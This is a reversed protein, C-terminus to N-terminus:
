ALGSLRIAGASIASVGIGLIENRLSTDLAIGLIKFPKAHALALIHTSMDNELMDDVVIANEISGIAAHLKRREFKSKRDMGALETKLKGLVANQNNIRTRVGVRARLLIDHDRGFSSTVSVGAGIISLLILLFLVADVLSFVTLEDLDKVQLFLRFVMVLTLSLLGFMSILVIADRVHTGQELRSHTAERLWAWIRYDTEIRLVLHLPHAPKGPDADPVPIDKIGETALNSYFGLYRVKEWLKLSANFAISLFVTGSVTASFFWIWWVVYDQAKPDTGTEAGYFDRGSDSLARFIPGIFAHTASLVFAVVTPVIIITKANSLLDIMIADLHRVADKSLDARSRATLEPHELVLREEIVVPHYETAQEWATGVPGGSDSSDSTGKTNYFAYSLGFAVSLTLYLIAPGLAETLSVSVDTTALLVINTLAGIPVLLLFTAGCLAVFDEAHLSACGCPLGVLTLLIRALGMAFLLPSVAMLFIMALTLLLTMGIVSSTIPEWWAGATTDFRLSSKITVLEDVIAKNYAIDPDKEMRKLKVNKWKDMRIERKQGRIGEDVVQQTMAQQAQASPGASGMGPAVVGLAEVDGGFVDDESGETTATTAGSFSSAGSKAGGGLDVGYDVGKLDGAQATNLEDAPKGLVEDAGWGVWSIPSLSDLTAYTYATSSGDDGSESDSDSHSRSPITSVTSANSSGSPNSSASSANSSSM